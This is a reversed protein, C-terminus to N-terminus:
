SLPSPLPFIWAQIDTELKLEGPSGRSKGAEKM